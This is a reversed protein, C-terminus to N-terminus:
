PLGDVDRGGPHSPVEPLSERSADGGQEVVAVGREDEAAVAADEEADTQRCGCTIADTEDVEVAVGVEAVGAVAVLAGADGTLVARRCCRAGSAIPIELVTNSGSRSGAPSWALDKVSM